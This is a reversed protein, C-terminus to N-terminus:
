RARLARVYILKNIREVVGCVTAALEGKQDSTGHGRYKMLDM